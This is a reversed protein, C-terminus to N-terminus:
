HNIIMKDVLQRRMKDITEPSVLKGEAEDERAQAYKKAEAEQYERRRIEELCGCEVFRRHWEGYVCQWEGNKRRTYDVMTEASFIGVIDVSNITQEGFSIFTSSTINELIKQLKLLQEREEWIQVGGRM